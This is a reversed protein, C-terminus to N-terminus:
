TRKWARARSSLEAADAELAFLELPEVGAKTDFELVRKKFTANFVTLFGDSTFCAVFRGNPAVAMKLVPANVKDKVISNRNTRPLSSVTGQAKKLGVIAVRCRDFWGRRRMRWLWRSSERGRHM